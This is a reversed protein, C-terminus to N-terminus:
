AATAIIREIVDREVDFEHAIVDASDGAHYLDLVTNARLGSDPLFPQGFAFRPDVVVELDGYSLLRLREPFGDEAWTVPQLGHEIAGRLGGQRDRARLWEDAATRDSLRVLIDTGDHALRGQRLFDQGLERRAAGMGAAIAQMSLGSRRLHRYLQAEVMAIFPLRASRPTDPRLTHLLADRKAWRGLTQPNLGLHVAAEGLTYLPVDFRLDTKM